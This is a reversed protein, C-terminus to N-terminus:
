EKIKRNSIVDFYYGLSFSMNCNYLKPLASSKKVTPLFGANHRIAIELWGNGLKFDAGIGSVIGVDLRNDDTTYTHKADRESQTTNDIHTSSQTYGGSWYSIYPGLLIVGRYKENGFHAAALIPFQIYNIVTKAYYKASDQKMKWAQGKQSFEIETQLGIYKNFDIRIQAAMDSGLLMAKKYNAPPSYKRLHAMNMGARAGILVGIEAQTKYISFLLLLSLFVTNRM